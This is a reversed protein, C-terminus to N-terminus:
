CFLKGSCGYMTGPLDHEGKWSSYLHKGEFVIVPPLAIGDASVCGMATFCYRGTGSISRFVKDGTHAVVKGGRPDTYLPTEDINWMSGPGIKLREVESELLDYFEYVLFPDSANEKRCRQLPEPKKLSLHHNRLFETVWDNSPTKDTFRCYARLYTGLTDENDWNERVYCGILERLEWKLLGCGYKAATRAVMAIEAQLEEPISLHAGPPPLCTNIHSSKNHRRVTSEPLNFHKAAANLSLSHTRMYEICKQIRARDVQAKVATYKRPM